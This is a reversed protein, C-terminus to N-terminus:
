PFPPPTIYDNDDMGLYELIAQLFRAIRRLERELYQRDEGLGHFLRDFDNRLLLLDYHRPPVRRIPRLAIKRGPM